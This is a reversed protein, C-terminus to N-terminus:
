LVLHHVYWAPLEHTALFAAVESRYFDAPSVTGLFKATEEPTRGAAALRTTVFNEARAMSQKFYEEADSCHQAAAM